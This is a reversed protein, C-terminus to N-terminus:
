TRRAETRRRRRPEMKERGVSTRREDRENTSPARAESRARVVVVPFADIAEEYCRAREERTAERVVYLFLGDSEQRLWREGPAIDRPAPPGRRLRAIEAPRLRVPARRFGPNGDSPAM